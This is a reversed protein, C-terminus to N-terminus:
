PDKTSNRVGWGANIMHPPLLSSPSLPTSDPADFASKQLRGVSPRPPPPSLSHFCMLDLRFPVISLTLALFM